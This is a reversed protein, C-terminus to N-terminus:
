LLFFATWYFSCQITSVIAVHPQVQDGVPERPGICLVTSNVYVDDMGAMFMITIGLSRFFRRGVHALGASDALHTSFRALTARGMANRVYKNLPEYSPAKAYKVTLFLATPSNSPRMRHEEELIRVPCLFPNHPNPFFQKQVLDPALSAPPDYLVHEGPMQQSM